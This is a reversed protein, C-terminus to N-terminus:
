MMSTRIVLVSALDYIEQGRSDTRSPWSFSFFHVYKLVQRSWCLCKEGKTVETSPISPRSAIMTSLCIDHLNACFHSQEM